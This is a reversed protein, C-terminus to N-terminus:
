KKDDKTMVEQIEILEEEKLEGGDPELLEEDLEVGVPLEEDLEVGVPLEEDLEVGVPLEEDLEEGVPLEEESELLETPTGVHLQGGHLSDPFDGTTESLAPPTLALV